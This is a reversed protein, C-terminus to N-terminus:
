LALDPATGPRRRRRYRSCTSTPRSPSSAGRTSTTSAARWPAAPLRTTRPSGPMPLDASSSSTARAVVLAVSSRVWPSSTSAGSANAARCWRSRGTSDHRSPSGAGCALASRTANPSSSPAATSGNRIPTAVSPRSVAAASSRRTTHRTSSAWQSSSAVASARRNQARRMSASRTAMTNATRSPTALRSSECPSGSSATVPRAAPSARSSSPRPRASPGSSSTASRRMASAPPLGRASSSSGRARLAAWSSPAAGSGAWSRSVSRTSPTKRSRTRRRGAATCDRSRSAAASSM